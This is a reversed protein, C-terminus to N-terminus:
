VTTNTKLHTNQGNRAGGGGELGLSLEKVAPPCGVATERSGPLVLPRNTLMPPRSPPTLMAGSCPHSIRGGGSTPSAPTRTPKDATAFDLCIEFGRKRLDAVVKAAYDIAVPASPKASIGVARITRM